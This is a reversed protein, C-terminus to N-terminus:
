YMGEYNLILVIGTFIANFAGYLGGIDRLFDLLSYATRTYEYLDPDLRIQFKITSSPPNTETDEVPYEEVIFSDFITAFLTGVSFISDSLRLKQRQVVLLKKKGENKLKEM